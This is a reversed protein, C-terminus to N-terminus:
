DCVFGKWDRVPVASDVFCLNEFDDLAALLHSIVEDHCSHTLIVCKKPRGGSVVLRGSCSGLVGIGLVSCPQTRLMMDFANAYTTLGYCQSPDL